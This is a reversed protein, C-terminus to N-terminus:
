CTLVSPCAHTSSAPQTRPVPSNKQLACLDGCVSVHQTEHATLGACADQTPSLMHCRDTPRDQLYPPAALSVRFHPMLLETAHLHHQSHRKNHVCSTWGVPLLLMHLQM